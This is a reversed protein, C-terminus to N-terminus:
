YQGVALALLEPEKDLPMNTMLEERGAHYDIVNVMLPQVDQWQRDHLKDVALHIHNFVPETIKRSVAMELAQSFTDSNPRDKIQLCVDVETEDRQDEPISELYYDTEAIANLLAQVCNETQYCDPTMGSTEIFRGRCISLFNGISLGMLASLNRQENNSESLEMIGRVMARAGHEFSVVEDENGSDRMQRMMEVMYGGTYTLAMNRWRGNEQPLSNYAYIRDWLGVIDQLFINQEMQNQPFNGSQTLEIRQRVVEQLSIEDGHSTHVFDPLGRPVAIFEVRHKQELTAVM